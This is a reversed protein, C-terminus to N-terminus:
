KALGMLRQVEVPRKFVDRKLGEVFEAEVDPTEEAPYYVHGINSPINEVKQYGKPLTLLLDVGRPNVRELQKMLAKLTGGSVVDDEVVLVNKGRLLSPDDLWDVERGEGSLLPINVAVSPKTRPFLPEYSFGEPGVFVVADYKETYTLEQVRKWVGLYHSPAHENVVGKRDAYKKAPGAFAEHALEQAFSGPLYSVQNWYPALRLFADRAGDGSHVMLLESINRREHDIQEILYERARACAPISQNLSLFAEESRELYRKVGTAYEEPIGYKGDLLAHLRDASFLYRGLPTGLRKQIEFFAGLYGEQFDDRSFCPGASMYLAMGSKVLREVASPKPAFDFSCYAGISKPNFGMLLRASELLSDGTVFDNELLLVNKGEIDSPLIDDVFRSELVKGEKAHVSIVKSNLGLFDAMGGAFLGGSAIAVFTDYM